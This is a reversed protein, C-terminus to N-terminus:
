YNFQVDAFFVACDYDGAPSAASDCPPLVLHITWTPYIVLDTLVLPPNQWFLMWGTPSDQNVPDQLEGNGRHTPALVLQTPGQDSAGAKLGLTATEDQGHLLHPVTANISRVQVALLRATRFSGNGVLPFSLHVQNWERNNVNVSTALFLHHTEQQMSSFKLAVTGLDAM